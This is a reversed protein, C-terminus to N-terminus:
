TTPICGHRSATGFAEAQYPYAKSGHGLRILKVWQAHGETLLKIRETDRLLPMLDKLTPRETLLIKMRSVFTAEFMSKVCFAWSFNQAQAAHIM